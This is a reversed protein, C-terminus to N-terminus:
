RGDEIKTMETRCDRQATELSQPACQRTRGRRIDSHVNRDPLMGENSRQHRDIILCQVSFRIGAIPCCHISLRIRAIAFRTEPLNGRYPSSTPRLANKRASRMPLSFINARKPCIADTPLLHQKRRLANRASQMPLSFINARKPCIADTPLLHQAFRTEPLNCRYPSSTPMTQPPLDDHLHGRCMDADTDNLLAGGTPSTPANDEEVVNGKLIECIM